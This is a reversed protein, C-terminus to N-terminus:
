RTKIASADTEIQNMSRPAIRKCLWCGILALLAIGLQFGIVPLASTPLQYQVDQGLSTLSYARQQETWIGLHDVMHNMVFLPHLAISLRLQSGSLWNSLWIPWTLWGIALLLVLASSATPPIRLLILLRVVMAIELLLTLNVGVCTIWQQITIAHSFVPILWASGCGVAIGFSILVAGPLRGAFASLPPTILVCLIASGIFLDLSNGAIFYCCVGRAIGAVM